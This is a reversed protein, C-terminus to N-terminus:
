CTVLETDTLKTYHYEYKTDVDYRTNVIDKEEIGQQSLADRLTTLSTEMLSQAEAVTKGLTSLEFCLVTCVGSNAVECRGMASLVAPAAAEQAPIEQAFACSTLMLM